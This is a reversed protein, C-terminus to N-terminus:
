NSENTACNRPILKRRAPVVFLCHNATATVIRWAHNSCLKACYQSHPLTSPPRASGHLHPQLQVRPLPLHLNQWQKVGLARSHQRGRTDRLFLLWRIIKFDLLELSLMEGRSEILETVVQSEILETVVRPEILEKAVQTGESV